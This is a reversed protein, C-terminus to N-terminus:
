GDNKDELDIPWALSDLLEQRPAAVRNYGETGRELKNLEVTVRKLEERDKVAKAALEGIERTTCKLSSPM